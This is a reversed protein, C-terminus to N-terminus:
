KEPFQGQRVETGYQEVAGMIQQQLNAYVKVFPPQQDCLGLLDHTVLIQGDCDSGALVL